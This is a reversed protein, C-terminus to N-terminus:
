RGADRYILGNGGSGTLTLRDETIGITMVSGLVALEHEDQRQIEEPCARDDTVLDAVTLEDGVATWTGSFTRCATTGSATGGPELRLTSGSAVSSVTEGEVLTDLVWDTGALESTPVPPVRGFRLTAGDGTLVLEEDEIRAEGVGALAELYASEAAMVDPECGMETGGLGDVRLANGDLRYTGSYHNCFSVGGLQGSELSLTARGTAPRPLPAGDSTGDTLEWEGLVDSPPVGGGGEACGAALALLVAVCCRVARSTPTM